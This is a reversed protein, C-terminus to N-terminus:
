RCKKKALKKVKRLNKCSEIAEDITMGWYKLRRRLAHYPIGLIESLESICYKKGNYEWIKANRKNRRNTTKTAWRCNKKSYGKNNNIRDIEMGKPAEGMDKLFAKFDGWEDCYSIGRGGYYNYGVKHKNDCRQKMTAWAAYTPSSKHGITHGHKTSRKKTSESQFCGCSKAHGSKLNTSRITKKNGCICECYWLSCHGKKSKGNFGIVKLRGYKNGILNEM